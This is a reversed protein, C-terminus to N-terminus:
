EVARVMLRIQEVHAAAVPTLGAVPAPGWVPPSQGDAVFVADLASRLEILHIARIPTWGAALASDTWTMASLGRWARLTDIAARLEMVHVARVSTEAAVVPTDAFVAGFTATASAPGALTVVCTESTGDCSGSWRVFSAGPGPAATLTVQSGSSFGAACDAGCSIGAPQSTVTGSASGRRVVSLITSAVPVEYAGIDAAPGSPRSVGDLDRTVEALTLGADRAPSAASLHYDHGAANVFLEAPVAVISHLDQGTSMRWQALTIRTNGDDTSFRDMVVNWDSALGPLSDASVTISGRFSHANYLINDLVTNGTAGNTLNVAWRGDSAQVITNHAVVNNASAGGGDIRYLSIGGAHNGYILNNQFRSGQVGDANIGSGGAIGNDHIVNAEVLASSIIGDGGLSIDGNMHIGNARNGWVHNGRIV